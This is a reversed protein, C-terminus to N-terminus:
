GLDSIYVTVSRSKEHLAGNDYVGASVIKSLSAMGLRLLGAISTATRCATLQM